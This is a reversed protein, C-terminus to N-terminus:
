INVPEYDRRCSAISHLYLLCFLTSHTITSHLKNKRNMKIVLVESCRFVIGSPAIDIWAEIEWKFM